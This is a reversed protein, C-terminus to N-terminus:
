KQQGQQEIATATMIITASTRNVISKKKHLVSITCHFYHVGSFIHSIAPHLVADVVTQRRGDNCARLDQGHDGGQDDDEGHKADVDGGEEERRTDGDCKGGLVEHVVEKCTCLGEGKISAYWIM